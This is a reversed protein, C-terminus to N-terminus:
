SNSGLGVRSSYHALSASIARCKRTSHPMSCYYDWHFCPSPSPTPNKSAPTRGTGKRHPLPAPRHRYDLDGAPALRTKQICPRSVPGLATARKRRAALRWEGNFSSDLSWFLLSLIGYATAAELDWLYRWRKWSILLMCTFILMVGRPTYWAGNQDLLTPLGVKTVLWAGLFLGLPVWTGWRRGFDNLLGHKYLLNVSTFALIGLFPVFMIGPLTTISFTPWHMTIRTAVLCCFSRM